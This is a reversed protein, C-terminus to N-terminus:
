APTVDEVRTLSARSRRDCDSRIERANVMRAVRFVETHQAFRAEDVHGNPRLFSDVRDLGFSHGFEVLPDRLVLRHPGVRERGEFPVQTRPARSLFRLPLFSSSNSGLVLPSGGQRTRSRHRSYAGGLILAQILPLSTSGRLSRGFPSRLMTRHSSVGTPSVVRRRKLWRRRVWWVATTKAPPM